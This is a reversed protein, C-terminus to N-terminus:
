RYQQQSPASSQASASSQQLSPSVPPSGSPSDQPPNPPSGPPLDQPSDSLSGHSGKPVSKSSAESRLKSSAAPNSGASTPGSGSIAKPLSAGIAYAHSSIQGILPTVRPVFVGFYFLVNLAVAVVGVVLVVRPNNLTRELSSM